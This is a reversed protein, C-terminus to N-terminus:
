LLLRQLNQQYKISQSMAYSGAQILLSRKKFNMLELSMDVDKIQSAAALVNVRMISMNDISYILQNVNSGIEGRIKDLHKMSSEAIDMYAMYVKPRQLMSSSLNEYAGIAMNQTFSLNKDKLDALNLRSSYTTNISLNDSSIVESGIDTSTLKTLTLNGYNSGKGTKFFEISTRVTGSNTYFDIENQNIGAVIIDDGTISELSLRGISDVLADVGTQAQVSNIADQLKGTSDLSDVNSVPPITVGNVSFGVVDGTAVVDQTTTIINSFGMSNLQAGSILIGRGDISKFTLKGDTEIFAEVGTKDTISNIVNVVLGKPDGRAIGSIFGIRVGNISLSLVDGGRIFNSSTLSNVWSAKVGTKSSNRNIVEALVGVGTGQTTSITVEETLVDNGIGIASFKFALNGEASIISTEYTVHGIKSSHTSNISLTMNQNYGGISFKKNIYGGNLLNQGNFTTTTAINDLSDILKTIDSDIAKLTQSSQGDQSAQTAKVKITNLIKVQENIAKDAIEMIAVADNANKITQGLTNGEVELKNAIMLGSADDSAKNIRLGSSLRVLSDNLSKQNRSLNVSNMSLSNSNIRFSM